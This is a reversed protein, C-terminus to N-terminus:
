NFAYITNPNWPREIIFPTNLSSVWKGCCIYTRVDVSSAINGGKDIGAVMGKVSPRLTCITQGQQGAPTNGTPIIYGM